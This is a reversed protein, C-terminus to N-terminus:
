VKRTDEDFAVNHGTQRWYDINEQIDPFYHVFEVISEYCDTTVYHMYVEKHILILICPPRIPAMFHQALFCSVKRGWGHWYQHGTHNGTKANLEHVSRLVLSWSGFTLNAFSFVSRFGGVTGRGRDCIGFVTHFIFCFTVTRGSAFVCVNIWRRCLGMYVVLKQTATLEM